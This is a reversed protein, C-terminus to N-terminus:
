GGPNCQNGGKHNKYWGQACTKHLPVVRSIDNVVWVDFLKCPIADDLNELHSFKFAIVVRQAKEGMSDVVRYVPKVWEIKVQVAKQKM